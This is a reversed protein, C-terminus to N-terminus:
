RAVQKLVFDFILEHPSSNSTSLTRRASPFRQDRGEGKKIVPDQKKM